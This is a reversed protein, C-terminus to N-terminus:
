RRAAMMELRSLCILYDGCAVHEVMIGDPRRYPAGDVFVGVGCGLLKGVSEMETWQHPDALDYPFAPLYEVDVGVPACAMTAVAMAESHSLSFHLDPRNAFVPKGGEAEAYVMDRESLGWDHLLENLLLGALLSLRQDKAFRFSRVKARRHESVLLLAEDFAQPDGLADVHAAVFRCGHERMDLDLITEM